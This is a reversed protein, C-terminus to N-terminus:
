KFAGSPFRNRACLISDHLGAPKSVAQSYTDEKSKRFVTIDVASGLAQKLEPLAAITNRILFERLQGSLFSPTRM